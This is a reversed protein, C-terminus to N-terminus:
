QLTHVSCDVRWELFAILLANSGIEEVRFCPANAARVAAISEMSSSRGRSNSGFIAFSTARCFCCSASASLPCRVPPRSSRRRRPRLSRSRWTWRRFGSRAAPGPAMTVQMLLLPLFLDAVALHVCGAVPNGWGSGATPPLETRCGGGLSGMVASSAGAFKGRASGALEGILVSCYTSSSYSPLRSSRCSVIRFAVINPSQKTLKNKRARM